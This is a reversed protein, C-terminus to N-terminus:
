APTAGEPAARRLERLVLGVERQAQLLRAGEAELAQQARAIEEPALQALETRAQAYARRAAELCAQVHHDLYTALALPQVRLASTRLEGPGRDLLWACVQASFEETGPPALDRPWGPPVTM